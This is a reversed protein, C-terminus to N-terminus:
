AFLRALWPHRARWAARYLARVAAKRRIAARVRDLRRLALPLALQGNM